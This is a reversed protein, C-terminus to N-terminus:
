KKQLFPTAPALLLTGTCSEVGSYIQYFFCFLAGGDVVLWEVRSSGGMLKHLLRFPRLRFTASSTLPSSKTIHFYPAPYRRTCSSSSLSTTSQIDSAAHQQHYSYLVGYKGTKHQAVLTMHTDHVTVQCRSGFISLDLFDDQLDPAFRMSVRVATSAARAASGDIDIFDAKSSPAQSLSVVPQWMSSQGRFPPLNTNPRMGCIALSFTTSTSPGISSVRLLVAPDILVPAIPTSAIAAIAMPAPSADAAAPAAVAAAAPASVTVSIGVTANNKNDPPGSAIDFFVGLDIPACYFADDTARKFDNHLVSFDTGAHFVRQFAAQRTHEVVQLEVVTSRITLWARESNLLLLPDLQDRLLRASPWRIVLSDGAAM